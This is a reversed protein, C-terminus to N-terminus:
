AGDTTGKLKIVNPLELYDEVRECPHDEEAGLIKSIEKDYKKSSTVYGVIYNEGNNTFTLLVFDKYSDERDIWGYVKFRWPDVYHVFRDWKVFSLEELTKRVDMNEMEALKTQKNTMTEAVELRLVVLHNAAVM